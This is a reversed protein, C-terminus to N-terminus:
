ENIFVWGLGRGWIELRMIQRRRAFLLCLSPPTIKRSFHRHFFTIQTKQPPTTEGSCLALRVDVVTSSILKSRNTAYDSNHTSEYTVHKVPTTSAHKPQFAAAIRKQSDVSCVTVLTLSCRHIITPVGLSCKHIINLSCRHIITLSWTFM